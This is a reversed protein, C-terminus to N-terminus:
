SAKKFQLVNGITAKAMMSWDSMLKVRDTWYVAHNYAAATRNRDVQHALQAEIVHPSYGREHLATSATGRFGHGSLRGAYGMRYLVQNITNANMVGEARRANPFLYKSEGTLRKLRDLLMLVADALPVMHERRKKMKHAPIRWHPGLKHNADFEFESWEALRLEATRVFTLALLEVAIKIPESAAVGELDTWFADMDELQLHVNHKPAPKSVVEGLSWTPDFDYKVLGKAAAHKFVGRCLHLIQAATTTAGRDRVRVKSQHPMQVKKREAVSELIPGIQAAGVDGIRLAGLKPFVERVFIRENKSAYGPTWRKAPDGKTTKKLLYDRAVKEFTNEADQSLQQRKARRQQGPDLNQDVLARAVDHAKRADALSVEPFQGITFSREKGLHRYKYRWTKTGTPTIALFLGGGDTIKQLKGNSKLNAVATATLVRKM